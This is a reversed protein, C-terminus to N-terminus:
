IVRIIYNISINSPRNRDGTPVVRDADFNVRPTTASRDGNADRGATNRTFVGGSGIVDINYKTTGTMNKIADGELSGVKTGVNGGPNSPLRRISDLDRGTDEDTGRLFRGRLDPLHFTLGDDNGYGFSTGITKFLEPYDARNVISGDCLLYGDPAVTGALREITGIQTIQQKALGNKPM